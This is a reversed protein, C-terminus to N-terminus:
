REGIVIEVFDRPSVVRTEQRADNPFHTLNGTVVYEAGGASAVELFMADDPYTLSLPLPVAGVLEDESKLFELLDDVLRVDFDFKPRRLVERYETMIRADFCLLIRGALVLQLVAAPAGGPSLLASALVNTDLVIRV